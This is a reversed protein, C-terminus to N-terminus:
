PGGMDPSNAQDSPRAQTPKRPDDPLPAGAGAGPRATGTGEPTVTDVPPNGVLRPEDDAHHAARVDPHEAEDTADPNLTDNGDVVGGRRRRRTPQFVLYGGVLLIVVGLMIFLGVRDGM